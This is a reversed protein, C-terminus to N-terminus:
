LRSDSLLRGTVVDFSLLRGAADAIIAIDAQLRVSASPTGQLRVDIHPAAALISGILIRTQDESALTLAYSRPNAVLTARGRLDTDHQPLTLSREGVRLTPGVLAGDKLWLDYIVPPGDDAAAVAGLFVRQAGDPPQKVAPPTPLLVNRQRLIM